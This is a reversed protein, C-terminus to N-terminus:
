VTVLPEWVRFHDKVLSPATLLPESQPQTSLSSSWYDNLLPRPCLLRDSFLLFHSFAWYPRICSEGRCLTEPHDYPHVKQEGPMRPCAGLAQPM